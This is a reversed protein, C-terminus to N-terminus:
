ADEATYMDRIEEPIDALIFALTMALPGAVKIASEIQAKSYDLGTLNRVTNLIDGTSIKVGKLARETSNRGNASCWLQYGLLDVEKFFIRCESELHCYQTLADRWNQSGAMTDAYYRGSRSDLFDRTMTEGWGMWSNVHEFAVAWARQAFDEGGQQRATGFFGWEKNNSKLM